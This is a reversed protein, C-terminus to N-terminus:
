QKSHALARKKDLKEKKQDLKKKLHAWVPNLINPMSEICNLVETSNNYLKQLIKNKNRKEARTLPEIKIHMQLQEHIIVLSEKMVKRYKEGNIKINLYKVFSQFDLNSTRDWFLNSKLQELLLKKGNKKRNYRMNKTKSFSKKETKTISSHSSEEDNSIPNTIIDKFNRFFDENEDDDDILDLYWYENLYFSNYEDYETKSKIHDNNENASM